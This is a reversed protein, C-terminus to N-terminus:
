EVPGPRGVHYGQAYDVGYGRLLQLTAEDEVFEAVTRKGMGKAMEALSRVVVQNTRCRPLDAVFEGDIKLYDFALHKLYYFSAFGSGFDDLAFECGLDSLRSAFAQAREVNGIAATETIEFVLGRGDAGTAALESAVLDPLAPDMLSKASLNVEFCAEKGKAQRDALLGIASRVVWRDIELILDSREALGLFRMPSILEGDDGHMRLLLEHRPTGSEWLPRIPQAHLVFGGKSLASRIRMDWDLTATLLAQREGQPDYVAVQDRGADKADYMAIDAEVLLQEATRSPGRGFLAVGISASVRLPGGPGGVTGASRIVDLLDSAARRAGSEDVRPLIVAFEDGGLRAFVDTERLRQGLLGGLKAILEDGAAHGLSDNVYKFGDLDIALVAGGTGYRAALALERTLEDSFRRRNFLGTLPDHDALHRLWSEARKRETIDQVHLLVQRMGDAALM